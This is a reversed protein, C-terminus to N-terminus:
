PAPSTAVSLQEAGWVAIAEGGASIGLDLEEFGGGSPGLGIPGSWSGDAPRSAGQVQPGGGTTRQWVTVAEGGADIAVQPEHASRGRGSLNTAKSWSRGPHRSAFQIREFRGDFREWVAVAEGAPDIAVEPEEANRGPASLNVPRSWRAGAARSASQIIAHAGDFRKWIAVAEGVPDIAV